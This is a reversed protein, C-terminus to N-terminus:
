SATVKIYLKGKSIYVSYSSVTATGKFVWSVNNLTFVAATSMDLTMGEDGKDLQFTPVDYINTNYGSPVIVRTNNLAGIAKNSEGVFKDLSGDGQFKDNLAM